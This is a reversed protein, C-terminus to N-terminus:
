FCLLIAFLTDTFICEKKHEPPPSTNQSQLQENKLDDLTKITYGDARWRDIVEGLIAANTASTSHLLAIEGSTHPFPDNTNSRRPLACTM